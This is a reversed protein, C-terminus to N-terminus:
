AKGLIIKLRYSLDRKPNKGRISIDTLLALRGKVSTKYEAVKKVKKLDNETMIDSCALLLSKANVSRPKWNKDTSKKYKQRLNKLHNNDMQLGLVNNGHQRYSIHPEFDYVINGFFNSILYIWEDHMKCAKPMRQRLLELLARNFVMTCGTAAVDVLASYKNKMVWPKSHANRHFKLNKDVIRLNSYYLAPQSNDLVALKEVACKLKDNDWVDDQDCLAYYDAEPADEILKLFSGSSGLHGDAYWSLCDHESVNKELIAETSDNSGDDRILISIHVDQQSYLSDLQQQLYAEGNYTAMLVCVTNVDNIHDTPVIQPAKKYAARGMKSGAFRAVCDFGFRVFDIIHGQKLLDKSVFAVLKKGESELPANNLLENHRAIEYGQIYNRKFQQKLTLNHSHYVRADAAYAIRCGAHMAKAAFFMDENTRLPQEFGRLEDFVAREYACCVNSSFFAKIGLRSIDDSSRIFSKDPYNFKRVLAEMRTANKKPLQRGTSIEADGRVIPAVLNQLFFQDAPVADHTMFVLYKGTAYSAALNRTGGHDFDKRDIRIFKVLPDAKCIQATNDNSDSDIVIIEIPQITQNHLCQLLAPMDKGANLTPIIVTISPQSKLYESGNEGIKM